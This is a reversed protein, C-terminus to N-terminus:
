LQLHWGYHPRRVKPTTQFSIKNCEIQGGIGALGTQISQTWECELHPVSKKPRKLLSFDMGTALHAWSLMIRLMDHNEGPCRLHKMVTIVQQILQEIKLPRM